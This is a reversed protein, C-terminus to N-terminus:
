YNNVGLKMSYHDSIYSSLPTVFPYVIMYILSVLSTQYNDLHYNKGFSTAISSITVFQVGNSFGLACFM